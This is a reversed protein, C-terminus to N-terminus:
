AGFAPNPLGFHVRALGPATTLFQASMHGRYIALDRFYRQLRQGNKAASSGGTRFLLETAEWALRGANQIAAYLRLDEEQTFPGNGAVARAAYAMWLESAHLVIAEAADVMGMALGFTQQYEQTQFRPTPHAGFTTRTRIIHEYEDLAAKAAGVMIAVLEAHYFSVVFGIYLPNGHLRTGLTGTTSPLMMWNFDEVYHHPIFADKVQVSNSGSGRMGLITNGWDDLMHYGGKPVVAVVMRPPGSHGEEQAICTGMFHTSYPVGSCYDWLGNILWGGDVRKATGAPAARHPARFDGEPGILEAQAEESWYSGIQLVHASSLCMCWGTSPCGRSVAIVMKFFTPLDFAYGGFRRPQLARYFGAKLFAQHVEESYYGREEAADQQERLLPRLADARRIFEDATLDPEPVSVTPPSAADIAM